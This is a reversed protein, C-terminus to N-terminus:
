AAEACTTPDGEPGEASGDAPGVPIFGGGEGGKGPSPGNGNTGREHQESTASCAAGASLPVAVLLLGRLATRALRTDM